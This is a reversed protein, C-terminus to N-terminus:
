ESESGAAIAPRGFLRARLWGKDLILVNGGVVMMVGLAALWTWQYGEAVTSLALAVVPFLVTAYAARDPGIRSLLTLFCFFGMASAPVALYLLSTAYSVSVEFVLTEGRVVTFALMWLAGYAMSYANSPLVAIGARQTRLSVMTGLSAIYTGALSLGLATFAASSLDFGELEPLFVLSIGALGVVAGGVVRPQIRQRFFIAGNVINMVVLSSFVVAILGSTIYAASLYVLLYNFSFLTLGLLAMWGHQLLTYRLNARRWWAFGWLLLAALLFRYAISQEPPVVGVQYKMALWSSGWVLVVFSYLFANSNLLSMLFNNSLM